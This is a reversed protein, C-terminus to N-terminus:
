RMKKDMLLNFDSFSLMKTVFGWILCVFSYCIIILLPSDIFFQSYYSFILIGLSFILTRFLTLRLSLNFIYCCLVFQACGTLSQTILSAIASGLAM